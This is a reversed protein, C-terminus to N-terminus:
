WWTGIPVNQGLEAQLLRVCEREEAEFSAEEESSWEEGPEHSNMWIELRRIQWTLGVSLELRGVDIAGGRASWLAPECIDPSFQLGESKIKETFARRVIQWNFLEADLFDALTGILPSPIRQGEGNYCELPLGHRLGLAINVACSYCGTGAVPLVADNGDVFWVLRSASVMFGPDIDMSSLARRVNQPWDRPWRSMDVVKGMLTLESQRHPSMGTGDQLLALHLHLDQSDAVFRRIADACAMSSAFVGVSRLKDREIREVPSNM